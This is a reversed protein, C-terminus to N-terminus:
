RSVENLSTPGVIPHSIPRKMVVQTPADMGDGTDGGPTYLLGLTILALAVIMVRVFVDIGKRAVDPLQLGNKYTVLLSAESCIEITLTRVIVGQEPSCHEILSEYWTAPEWSARAVDFNFERALFKAYQKLDGLTLLNGSDEVAAIIRAPPVLQLRDRLDEIDFSQLASPSRDLASPTNV